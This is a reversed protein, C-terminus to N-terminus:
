WHYLCASLACKLFRVKEGETSHKRYSPLVMHFVHRCPLNGSGTVAVDGVNIPAAKNCETQLSKGGAKLLSLSVAGQSLDLNGNTTNVYVDPQM